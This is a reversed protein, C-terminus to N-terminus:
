QRLYGSIYFFRDVPQVATVNLTLADGSQLVLSDSFEDAQYPFETISGSKTGMLPIGNMDLTADVPLSWPLATWFNKFTFTSGVPVIYPASVSQGAPVVMQVIIGEGVPQLTAAQRGTQTIQIGGALGLCALLAISTKM